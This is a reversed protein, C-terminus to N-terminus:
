CPETRTRRLPADRSRM